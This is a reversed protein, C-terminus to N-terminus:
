RRSEHEVAPRYCFTRESEARWSYTCMDEGSLPAPNFPHDTVPIARAAADKMEQERQEWMPRDVMKMLGIIAEDLNDRYEACAAMDDPELEDSCRALMDWIRTVAIARRQLEVYDGGLRDIEKTLDAKSHDVAAQCGKHQAQWKSVRPMLYEM